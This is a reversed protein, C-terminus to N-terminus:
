SGLLSRTLSNRSEQMDRLATTLAKDGVRIREGDAGDRMEHLVARRLLEKVYSATVGETEAIVPELDAALEVERAYLEFLKRRGEADPRPIEVALDVRGPRDRLAAELAEPRNTTLVFTVDADAGIGDMADLLTFLLSGGAGPMTRDEAVLDVDEVVLISPQLRRALEAAKSIFRMAAGTLIIVTSGSLRSLLYRVTHTKGTGPPGHLLLGRKLHQGAARLRDAHEAIGVIHDEIAPLVGEPLVVQEATLAPRPLFTLLENGRYESSGFALVQGRLVDRERALQEIRDRAAGAAARDGALVEVKSLASPGHQPNPGRLAVVVPGGDPATTLVLGFQVVEETAEPGIAVTAMDVAGLEFAGHRRASSLMGTLEEHGRNAGTVGFWEPEGGREALYAEVGRHVNAHEWPPFDQGVLVIQRFGVGLHGTIRGILEEAPNDEDVVLAATQVLKRLDGALGRALKRDEGTIGM